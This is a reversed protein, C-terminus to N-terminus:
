FLHFIKKYAFGILETGRIRGNYWIMWMKKKKDYMASPKYCANSDFQGKTPKIIPISNRKWNNIGNNSKAIFIRATNIDSYGIYFMLYKKSSIKHVECGGVKFSDLSLKNSNPSFIPNYKYKIWDIGNKSTAYCIVDPEYFQGAAYWMKFIKEEQDYVVYPNMVSGKEFDNEPVLIPNNKYKIFKSGNESIAVGIKSNGKHQGTYWLYCKKKVITISARNVISEWSQNNGKNLIIKLESWNIGDISTSLAIAGLPRWSVYMKYINNHKLVFPDFITGTKKNGLVPNHKYKTWEGYISEYSLFIFVFCINFSFIIKKKVNKNLSM